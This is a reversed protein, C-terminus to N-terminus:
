IELKMLDLLCVIHEVAGGLGISQFHVNFKLLRKIKLTYKLSRVEWM